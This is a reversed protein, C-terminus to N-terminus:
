GGPKIARMDVGKAGFSAASSAFPADSFTDHRKESFEVKEFGAAEIM